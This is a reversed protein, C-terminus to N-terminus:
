AAHQDPMVTTLSLMLVGGVQKAGARSAKALVAGTSNATAVIVPPLQLKSAFRAAAAGAAADAEQAKDAAAQGSSSSSSSGPFGTGSGSSSTNLLRYFATGGFLSSSSSNHVGLLAARSNSSSNGATSGGIRMQLGAAHCPYSVSVPGTQWHQQHLQRLLGKQYDDATHPQTHLHQQSTNNDGSSAHMCSRQCNSSRSHQEPADAQMWSSSNKNLSSQSRVSLAAQQLQMSATHAARIHLLLALGRSSRQHTLM